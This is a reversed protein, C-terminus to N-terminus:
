DGKFLKCGYVALPGLTGIHFKHSVHNYTIVHLFKDHDFLVAKGAANGKASETKTKEDSGEGVIFPLEIHEQLSITVCMLPM